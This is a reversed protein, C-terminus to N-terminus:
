KGKIFILRAGTIRRSWRHAAAKYRPMVEIMGLIDILDVCPNLGQRERSDWFGRVGAGCGEGSCSQYEDELSFM